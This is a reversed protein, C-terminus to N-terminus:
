YDYNYTTKKKLMAKRLLIYFQREVTLKENFKNSFSHCLINSTNVKATDEPQLGCVGTYWNEGKASKYKFFYVWGKQNKFEILQKDLMVFTDAYSEEDKFLSQVMYEQTAYQKPFRSNQKLETLLNYLKARYLTHEAFPMFVSDAVPIDNVLMKEIITLKINLNKLSLLKGFFTKVKKDSYFPLLAASLNELYSNSYYKATASSSIDERMQRKLAIKAETLLQTYYSKYVKKKLVGSDVLDALLEVLEKKYETYPMLQFFDPYFKKSLQLSDDFYNFIGGTNYESVLPTEELILERIKSYSKETKIAALGKLAAMQLTSTDGFSNYLGTLYVVNAPTKIERIKEVIKAKYDIYDKKRNDCTDILTKWDEFDEEFLDMQNLSELAQARHASDGNLDAIYTKARSKFFYEGIATDPLPEFTAFFTKLFDGPGETTDYQTSLTYKVSNKLIIKYWRATASGTDTYKLEISSYGNKAEYKKYTNVLDGKNDYNNPQTREWYKVSDLLNYYKGYRYYEVMVGKYSNPPFFNASRSEGKHEKAKKVAYRGQFNGKKKPVYGTKVSFLLASDTYEQANPYDKEHINFSAIFNGTGTSDKAYKSAIIYTNNLRLTFRARIYNSDPTSFLVDLVPRTNVNFYNRSVETLDNNDLFEFALREIQISDADITKGNYFNDKIVYYQTGTTFNVASYEHSPLWKSFITTDNYFLPTHPMLISFLSDPSYFVQRAVTSPIEIKISNFFREAEPGSVYEGNGALKFIFVETPTVFIQYRQLHGGKRTRNLIDFGEYGFKNIKKQSLIEGPINEYLVSDITKYIYQEDNNLLHGFTKLRMVRYYAGNIMDACLYQKSVENGPFEFLRGPTEVSFYNDFSNFRQFTVPYRLTDLRKKQDADREGFTVPRLTYGKARLLEIVGKEGPLHAAGVGTFLSNLKMLSDMRDAMNRNRRFLIHEMFAKSAGVGNLSDLLDLDGRRYADEVKEGFSLPSDDDRDYRSSGPMYDETQDDNALDENIQDLEEFGELGLFKKNLRNATQFIYLDLYTDEEFNDSYEDNRFMLYNLVELDSALANKLAKKRKEALHKTHALGGENNKSKYNWYESLVLPENEYIYDLWIRPDIELATMDVSNLAIFFSDSLHFALKNSVHMTGYLYSPKALGNGTIEWLLGQYKDKKQAFSFSCLLCLLLSLFLSKKM